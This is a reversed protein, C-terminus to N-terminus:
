LCITSFLPPLPLTSKLTDKYIPSFSTDSAYRLQHNNAILKLQPYNDAPGVRECLAISSPKTIKPTLSVGRLRLHIHLRYGTRLPVCWCPFMRLGEPIETDVRIRKRHVLLVLPKRRVLLNRTVKSHSTFLYSFKLAIASWRSLQLFTLNM